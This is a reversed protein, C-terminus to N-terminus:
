SSMWMLRELSVLQKLKRKCKQVIIKQPLKKAIGLSFFHALPRSIEIFKSKSKNPANDEDWVLEQNESSSLLIFVVNYAAFAVLLLSLILIMESSGM